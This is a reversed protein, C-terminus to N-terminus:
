NTDPKRYLSTRRPDIIYTDKVFQYIDQIDNKSLSVSFEVHEEKLEFIESLEPVYEFLMIYESYVQEFDEQEMVERDFIEYKKKNTFPFHGKPDIWRLLKHSRVYFTKSGMKEQAKKIYIDTDKVKRTNAFSMIEKLLKEIIQNM